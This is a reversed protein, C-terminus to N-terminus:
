QLQMVVTVRARAGCAARKMNTYCLQLFSARRLGWPCLRLVLRHFCHTPHDRAPTAAASAPQPASSIADGPLPPLMVMLGGEVGCIGIRREVHGIRGHRQATAGAEGIGRAKGIAARDLAGSALVADAYQRRHDRAAGRQFAHGAHQVREVTAGVHAQIAARRAAGAPVALGQLSVAAAVVSFAATVSVMWGPTM